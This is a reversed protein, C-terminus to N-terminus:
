ELEILVEELPRGRKGAAIERDARRMDEVFEPASALVFDEFADEDLGHLVAVPRGARTVLLPGIMLRGLLRGPAHSLERITVIDM